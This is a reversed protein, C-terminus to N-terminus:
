VMYALEHASEIQLVQYSTIKSPRLAMVAILELTYLEGLGLHFDIKSQRYHNCHAGAVNRKWSQIDGM